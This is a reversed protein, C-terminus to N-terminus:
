ACISAYLIAYLFISLFPDGILLPRGFTNSAKLWRTRSV